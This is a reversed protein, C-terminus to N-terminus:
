VAEEVADLAEPLRNEHYHVIAIACCAQTVYVNVMAMLKARELHRLAEQRHGPNELVLGSHVLALGLVTLSRAHVLDDSVTASQKEVHRALSVAKNIDKFTARAGVVLDNGCRCCLRQLDRDGPPLANFLQYAELLHNFAVCDKGGLIGYTTGLCWLASAIYRKIEFAKAM